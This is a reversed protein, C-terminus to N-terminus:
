SVRSEAPETQLHRIPSTTWAGPHRVLENHVPPNGVVQFEFSKDFYDYFKSPEVDNIDLTHYLAVSMVYTGNGLLLPEFDVAFSLSDGQRLEVIEQPMVQKSVIIGDIRFFLVSPTLPYTGDEEARADIEVRLRRGTIFVAQENGEEDVLRVDSM